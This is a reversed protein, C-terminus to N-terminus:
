SAASQQMAKIKGTAWSVLPILDAIFALLICLGCVSCVLLAIGQSHDAEEPPESVVNIEAVCVLLELNVEEMCACTDHIM